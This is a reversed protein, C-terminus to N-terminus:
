DGIGADLRAACEARRRALHRARDIRWCPAHEMRAARDRDLAALLRPGLRPFHPWAMPDGTVLNVSVLSTVAMLVLVFSRVRPRPATAAAATAAIGRRTPASSVGFRPPM